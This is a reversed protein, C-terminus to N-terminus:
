RAAGESQTRQLDAGAWVPADIDFIAAAQDRGAPLGACILLRQEGAHESQWLGVPDRTAFLALAADPGNPAVLATADGVRRARVPPGATPVPLLALATELMDPDADDDLMALAAAELRGFLPTLASFAEWGTGDRECALCLPFLRGVRDVSPMMIGAVARRALAGPPVAFRWIPAMLYCAQWRTGLADRGALVLSQMAADWARVFDPSLGSGLFDGRCPAKGYYGFAGTGGM